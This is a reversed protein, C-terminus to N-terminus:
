KGLGKKLADATEKLGEQPAVNFKKHKKLTAIGALALIGAVALLVGGGAIKSIKASAEAKALAIEGKVLGTVQSSMKGVLEGISPEKGPDTPAAGPATAGSAEHVGEQASHSV